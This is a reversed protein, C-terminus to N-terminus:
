QKAGHNTAGRGVAEALWRLEPDELNRLLPRIGATLVEEFPPCFLLVVQSCNKCGLWCHGPRPEVVGPQQGWGEPVPPWVVLIPRELPETSVCTM